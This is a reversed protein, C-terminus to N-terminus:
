QPEGETPAAPASPEAPQMGTAEEPNLKGDADADLQGFQETLGPVASAEENSIYGDSDADVEEFTAAQIPTAIFALASLVTPIWLKRVNM